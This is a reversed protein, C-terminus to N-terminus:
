SDPHNARGISSCILRAIPLCSAPRPQSVEVPLAGSDSGSFRAVFGTARLGVRRCELLHSGRRDNRRHTAADKQGSIAASVESVRATAASKSAVDRAGVSNNAGPRIWRATGHGLPSTATLLGITRDSTPASSKWSRGSAPTARSGDVLMRCLVLESIIRHCQPPADGPHERRFDFQAADLAKQM